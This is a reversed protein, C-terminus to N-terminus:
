CNRFDGAKAHDEGSTPLHLACRQHLPLAEFRLM